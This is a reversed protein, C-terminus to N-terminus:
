SARTVDAAFDVYGQLITQVEDDPTTWQLDWFYRGTMQATVSAALSLTIEGQAANALGVEFPTATTSETTKRIQSIIATYTDLRLPQPEPENDSFTIKRRLTDGRRAEINLTGAM